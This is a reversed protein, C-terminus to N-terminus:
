TEADEVVPTNALKKNKALRLLLINYRVTVKIEVERIILSLPYRTLLEPFTIPFIAVNGKRHVM